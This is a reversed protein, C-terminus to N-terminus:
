GWGTIDLKSELAQTKFVAKADSGFKKYDAKLAVTDVKTLDTTLLVGTKTTLRAYNGNTPYILLMEVLNDKEYLDDLTLGLTELAMMQEKNRVDITPVAHLIAILLHAETNAYTSSRWAASALYLGAGQPSVEGGKISLAYEIMPTTTTIWAEMYEKKGWAYWTGTTKQMQAVKLIEAKHDIM